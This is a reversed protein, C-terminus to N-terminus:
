NRIPITITFVSGFDLKSEILLEGSHMEVSNKVIALGLGTGPITSVNRGRYFPTALNKLEGEAIGIGEDEIIFILRNYDNSISFSIRGGMPSYKISNILINTLMQSLLKEDLLYDKVEANFIFEFKHKETAKLKANEFIESCLNFLPVKVPSFTIKGSEVRGITLVDDLLETMYKVSRRIQNTHKFNKEDSWKRGYLELLDASSLIATLPTRFEHSTMSIFRTKLENLEREKALASLVKEEAAKVKEIEAHLLQNVEEIKSTRESIIKELNLRHNELEIEARKRETIDTLILAVHYDAHRFIWIDFYKKLSPIYEVLSVSNGSLAVEGLRKVWNKTFFPNVHKITKGIIYEASIDFISQFAQNFEILKANYPQNFSDFLIEFLSFGATMNEFLLRYKEESKILAKQSNIRETINKGIVLVDINNGINVIPHFSLEVIGNEKKFEYEISFPGNLLAKKYYEYWQPIITPPFIEEIKMGTSLNVDYAEYFFDRVASNFTKLRFSEASITWIIDNTTEIVALFSNLTESLQRESLKRATIDRTSSQIEVENDYENHIMRSTTECWLYGGDKKKVRFTTTINIPKAYTISYTQQIKVIDHPHIFNLINHGTMEEPDYGLVRKCAASIFKCVGDKTNLSIIDSSNEALLRFKREGEKAAIEAQKNENIDTVMGFSGIFNMGSDYIPSASVICWIYTKHRTKFRCEYSEKIGRIRESKKLKLIEVDEEYVFDFRKKGILEEKLYGFLECLRDNCFTIVDNNDIIFVGENSTDVLLQYLLSEDIDSISKGLNM